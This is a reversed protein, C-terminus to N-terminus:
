LRSDLVTSIGGTDPMKDVQGSNRLEICKKGTLSLSTHLVASSGAEVGAKSYLQAAELM